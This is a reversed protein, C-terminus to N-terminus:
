KFAVMVLPVFNAFFCWLESVNQNFFAYSLFLFIYSIVFITIGMGSQFFALIVLIQFMIYYEYNARFPVTDTSTHSWSWKLHGLENTGSYLNTRQLMQGFKFVCFVIYMALCIYLVNKNVISQLQFYECLILLMVPQLLNLWFGAVSATKNLTPLDHDISIWLLAEVVQMLSVFIFFLAITKKEPNDTHSYIAYCVAVSLMFTVVSVEPSFCM